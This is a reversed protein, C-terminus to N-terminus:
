WLKIRNEGAKLHAFPGPFPKKERTEGILDKSVDLPSGDANEYRGQTIRTEGLVDTTVEDCKMNALEEPVQLVLYLGDAEECLRASIGECLVCGSEKRFPRAKGGYVNCSAYVAQPLEPYKGHYNMKDECIKRIREKYEDESAFSDYFANGFDVGERKPATSTGLYINNMLRDDGSYVFACGAVHTSHPYHYPTSRDLVNHNENLGGFLNHVYATGQSYNRVNHASLFVNGDVTCPGHNVEIQMDYICGYFVNNSLRLGQSQWDLWIAFPRCNYVLNNRIVTDIPAHFKIGALEHGAFERKTGINYIRNNEILSFAAGMHGVIGNQGCDHIVNDRVVHSGVSEKSWGKELALFVAEQQYQYGSKRGTNTWLNDGTSADKGLSVGSCKADHIDNKEIIWGKSWHPGIMGPQDGTPPTFSCAAQAIEFGRVTIYNIGTCSPYFCYPRVNIEVLANNLDTNGANCYIETCDDGVTAYWFNAGNEITFTEEEFPFLKTNKRVASATFLDDLSSAEYLSRGNIYVDGLHVPYESPLSFWDGEVRKAFPNFDGFFDNQIEKKWVTKDIKEWGDIQESGKIVAHEGSAVEYTIRNEDSEGGKQPNIWERYVGEHVVVTDGAMAVQAARSITSFPSSEDGRNDDNGCKSVHWIM